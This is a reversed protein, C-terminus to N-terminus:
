DTLEWTDISHDPKPPLRTTKFAEFHKRPNAPKGSQSVVQHSLERVLQRLETMPRLVDFSVRYNLFGKGVGPVLRSRTLDEIEERFLYGTLLVTSTAEIRDEKAVYGFVYIDNSLVLQKGFDNSYRVLGRDSRTSSTKVNLTVGHVAFDQKDGGQRYLSDFPLGLYLATAMEGLLGVRVTRFPDDKTTLFGNNYDSGTKSNAWYRKSTSEVLHYDKNSVAIQIM